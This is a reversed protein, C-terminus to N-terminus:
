SIINTFHTEFVNLFKDLSKNNKRAVTFNIKGSFHEALGVETKFGKGAKYFINILIKKPNIISQTDKQLKLSNDIKKLEEHDALFWAELEHVAVLHFTKPYKSLIVNLSDINFDQQDKDYVLISAHVSKQGLKIFKEFNGLVNGKTKLNKIKISYGLSQTFERFKNGEFFVKDSKGEVYFQILKAMLLGGVWIM